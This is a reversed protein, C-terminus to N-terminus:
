GTGVALRRRGPHEGDGEGVRAEGRAEGDTRYDFPEPNPGMQIGTREDGFGVFGIAGEEVVVRPHREYRVDLGVVQKVVAAELGDLLCEDIERVVESLTPEENGAGVVGPRAPEG